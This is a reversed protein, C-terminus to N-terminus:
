SKTEVRASLTDLQGGRGKRYSVPEKEPAEEPLDPIVFAKPVIAKKRWFYTRSSITYKIINVIVKPLPAGRYKGFALFLGGGIVAITFLAFLLFSKPALVFYLFFCVAAASGVFVFQQFTLPGVVKMETTIFQPVRYRM